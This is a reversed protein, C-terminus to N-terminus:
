TGAFFAMVEGGPKGALPIKKAKKENPKNCYGTVIRTGAFLQWSRQRYSNPISLYIKLRM